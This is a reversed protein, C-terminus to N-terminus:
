LYAKLPSTGSGRKPGVESYAVIRSLLIRVGAAVDSLFELGM